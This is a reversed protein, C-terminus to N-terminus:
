PRISLQKKLKEVETRTAAVTDEIQKLSVEERRIKEASWSGDRRARSLSERLMRARRGLLRVRVQSTALQHMRKLEQRRVPDKEATITAPRAAPAATHAVHPDPRSPRASPTSSGAAAPAKTARPARGTAAPQKSAQAPHATTSARRPATTGAQAPEPPEVVSAHDPGSLPDDDQNDYLVVLILVTMLVLVVGSFLLVNIQFRRTKMM